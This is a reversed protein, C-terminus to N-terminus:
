AHQRSVEVLVMGCPAFIVDFCSQDFIGGLEHLEKLSTTEM